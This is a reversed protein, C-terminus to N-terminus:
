NYAVTASFSGTYAGSASTTDVPFSGGVGFSATGASGLTGSVSGTAASVVPIVTVSNAGSTLTFTGPVSISFTQGGEGGVTYTARGSSATGGGVANGGAFSRAGTTANITVTTTTDTPKVVTGFTLDTVKTLTIPQIITTSSNTVASASNQAFAPVSLASLTLIGAAIKISLKVHKSWRIHDAEV